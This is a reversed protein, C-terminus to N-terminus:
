TLTIDRSLTDVFKKVFIKVLLEYVVTDAANHFLRTRLNPQM